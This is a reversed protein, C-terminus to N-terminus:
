GLRIPGGSEASDLVNIGSEVAGVPTMPRGPSADSLFFCIMGGPPSFAVEGRQFSRKPKELAGAVPTGVCVGGPMSRLNGGVPLARLLEGVTRPALHRKLLASAPSGAVQIPLLAGSVM